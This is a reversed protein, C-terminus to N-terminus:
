GKPRGTQQPQGHLLILGKIVEGDFIGPQGYANKIANMAAVLLYESPKDRPCRLSTAWGDYQSKMRMRSYNESAFRIKLAQIRRLFSGFDQSRETHVDKNILCEITGQGIFSGQFKHLPYAVTQAQFM